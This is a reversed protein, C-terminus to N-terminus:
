VGEKTYPISYTTVGTIGAHTARYMLIHIMSCVSPPPDFISLTAHYKGSPKSWSERRANDDLREVQQYNDYQSDSMNFESIEGTEYSSISRSSRSPLLIPEDQTTDDGRSTLDAQATDYADESPEFEVSHQQTGHDLEQNVEQTSSGVKPTISEVEQISSDVQRTSPEVEHIGLDVEPIIPGAEQSPSAILWNVFYSLTTL